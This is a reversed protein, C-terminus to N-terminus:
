AAEAAIQGGIGTDTADLALLQEKAAEFQASTLLGKEKLAGLRELDMVLHAMDTDAAVWRRGVCRRPCKARYSSSSSPSIYVIGVAVVIHFGPRATAPTTADTGAVVHRQVGVEHEAAVLAAGAGEEEDCEDAALRGEARCQLKQQQFHFAFPSERRRLGSQLSGAQQMPSM